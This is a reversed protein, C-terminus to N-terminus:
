PIVPGPGEGPEFLKDNFAEGEDVEGLAPLQNFDGFIVIAAVPSLFSACEAWM